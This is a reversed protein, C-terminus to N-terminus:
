QGLRMQQNAGTILRSATERNADLTQICRYLIDIHAGLTTVIQDAKAKQEPDKKAATWPAKAGVCIIYLETALSMRNTILALKPMIETAVNLTGNLGPVPVKIDLLNQSAWMALELPQTQLVNTIDINTM